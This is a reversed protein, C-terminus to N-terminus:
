LTEFTYTDAYLAEEVPVNTTTATFWPFVSCGSLTINFWKEALATVGYSVDLVFFRCCSGASGTEFPSNETVSGACLTVVKTPSPVEAGM